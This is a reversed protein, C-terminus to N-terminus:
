RYYQIKSRDVIVKELLKKEKDDYLDRELGSNSEKIKRLKQTEIFEKLQV